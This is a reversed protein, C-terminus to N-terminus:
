SRATEFANSSCWSLAQVLISLGCSHDLQELLVVQLGFTGLGESCELAAGSGIVIGPSEVLTQRRRAISKIKIQQLYVNFAIEKSKNLCCCCCCCCCFPSSWCCCGAVYRCIPVLPCGLPLKHSQVAFRCWWCQIFCLGFSCSALRGSLWGDLWDALRGALWHSPFQLLSRTPPLQRCKDWPCQM